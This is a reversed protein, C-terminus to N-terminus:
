LNRKEISARITAILSGLLYPKRIFEARIGADLDKRVSEEGLGTMLIVPVEPRIERILRLAEIGGMVPMTMDLLITLIESPHHQFIEVAERGNKALLVSYGAHELVRKGMKRLAAEDDVFLLTGARHPVVSLSPAVVPSIIPEVGQFFLTFATGKGPISEVELRGMHGRVIGAVAALGLGRGAFKTTFFPDFIKAKTADTMGSGSDKVEMYVDCGGAVEDASRPRDMTGTSIRVIGSGDGIAEAGNIILNMVAQRIQNADGEIWPLEPKLYLRLQVAKSISAGILPVMEEVLASLDFRTIVCKGKGAYALLQTTLEAARQSCHEAVELDSFASHDPPLSSKAQAVGLLIGALLNNFDHAIGAALVGISELKQAQRLAEESRRSETVDRILIGYERNAGRGLSALVGTAFFLTGDKRVRWGESEIWGQKDAEQLVPRIGEKRIDEPIYLCSCDRGLIEAETYGFMREAGSNWGLILRADDITYLAYDQVGDILLRYRLNIADLDKRLLVAYRQGFHADGLSKLLHGYVGLTARTTPVQRIAQQWLPQPSIGYHRAVRQLPLPEPYRNFVQGAILAGWHRGGLSLPVAVHAMGGGDQTLVVAGTRLADVVATCPTQPALCFPCGTEPARSSRQVMRWVPQPNVCEGLVNGELDMLAAALKTTAAYTQLAEIWHHPNLLDARWEQSLELPRLEQNSPVTQDASSDGFKYSPVM